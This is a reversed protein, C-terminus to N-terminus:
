TTKEDLALRCRTEWSRPRLEGKTPELRFDRWGFCRSDCGRGGAGLRDPPLADHARDLRRGAVRQRHDPPGGAVALRGRDQVPEVAPVAGAGPERDVVAVVIRAAEGGVQDGRELLAQRPRELGGVAGESGAGVQLRGHDGQEGLRDPLAAVLPERDDEVVVVRDFLLGAVPDGAPERVGKRGPGADHEGAARLRRQPQAPAPGGPRDALDARLLQLEIGLLDLPEEVLAELEAEVGGLDGQDLVPDAAPGGPERQDDPRKGPPAAPVARQLRELARAAAQLAVQGLLHEVPGAGLQAVEQQPGRNQAPEARREALRHDAIGLRPLQELLYPAVVEEDGREVRHRLPEAVVVHEGAGQGHLQLPALRLQDGLQVAAGGAPELLRLHDVVRDLVREGRAVPGAGRAQQRPAPRHQDGLAALGRNAPDEVTQRLVAALVARDTLREPNEAHGVLPDVLPDRPFAGGSEGARVALVGADAEDGVRDQDAGEVAVDAQRRPDRAFCPVAVGPHGLRPRPQHGLDGQREPEVAIM